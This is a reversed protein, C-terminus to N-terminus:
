PFYKYLDGFVPAIGDWGGHILMQGGTWVAVHDSRLTPGGTTTTTFWTNAVPDYKAGTNTCVGLSGVWGGWVIMESGTWVLTHEERDLPVNVGTSTGLWTNTTPNYRGGTNLDTIGDWGGWVIMETGTWVAKTLYRGSPV